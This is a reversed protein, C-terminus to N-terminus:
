VHCVFKCYSWPYYLLLIRGRPLDTELSSVQHADLLSMYTNAEPKAIMSYM